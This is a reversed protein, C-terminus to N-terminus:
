QCEKNFRVFVREMKRNSRSARFLLHWCDGWDTDDHEEEVFITEGM